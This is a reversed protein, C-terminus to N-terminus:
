TSIGDRAICRDLRTAFSRVHKDIVEQPIAAWAALTAAKLEALTRPYAKSVRRHLEVWVTEIPNLDPSYPPWKALSFGEEVLKRGLPMHPTANDQIFVLGARRRLARRIHPGCKQSYSNGTIAATEADKKKEFLVLPSKYGVGVAAWLLLRCAARKMHIRPTAVSNRPVLERGYTNDNSNSWTEDCFICDEPRIRRLRRAAAVRDANKKESCQGVKPRRMVRIGRARTDRLVTTTSVRTGEEALKVQLARCTGYPRGVIEMEGSASNRKRTVIRVLKAIRDRRAKVTLSERRAARPERKPGFGEAGRRLVKLITSIHRRLEAAITRATKGKRRLYFIIGAEAATVNPERTM